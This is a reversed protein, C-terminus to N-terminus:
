GVNASRWDAPYMHTPKMEDDFIAVMEELHGLRVGPDLYVSNGAKGWQLWFWVDDDTKSGEWMGQENPQAFFWPKPLQRLKDLRIVTLGFHATDVKLPYGSWTMERKGDVWGLLDAKGRRLQVGTLADIQKEQNVIDVLRQLQKATFISDGDVTVVLDCDTDCLSEFMKQMCQGYFVGGSVTLPIGLTKLALEIHNRAFTNEYRGATMVAAIKVTGM